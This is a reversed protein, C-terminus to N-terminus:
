KWLSSIVSILFKIKEVLFPVLVSASSLFLTAEVLYEKVAALLAKFKHDKKKNM